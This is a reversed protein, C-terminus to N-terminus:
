CGHRGIGMWGGWDTKVEGHASCTGFNSAREGFERVEPADDMAAVVGCVSGDCLAAAFFQVLIVDCGDVLLFGCCM